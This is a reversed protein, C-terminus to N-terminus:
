VMGSIDSYTTNTIKDSFMFDDIEQSKNLFGEIETEKMYPKKEEDSVLEKLQFIFGELENKKM